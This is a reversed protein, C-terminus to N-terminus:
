MHDYSSLPYRGDPWLMTCTIAVNDNTLRDELDTSYIFNPLALASAVTWILLIWGVAHRHSM